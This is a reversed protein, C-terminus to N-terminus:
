EIEKEIRGVINGADMGLLEKLTEVSGHEVYVNPIGVLITKASYGCSSIYAAIQEGLGGNLVNEEMTVFLSHDKALDDVIKHDWPQAFRMNVVTASYGKEALMDKVEMATKVMTGLALLAIKEGRELVECTGLSIPQRYEKLGKYVTGRPYRIAIPHEYEAAFDLADMMEYKNKPAFVCMNPMSTLYSIDFIGQHTEGDAGVLGARDVALIVPLDQICVDHLIQDYARQLFSSYIAVIPKMGGTALGAAFTIAHEEAIGVDFFRDPDHLIQDYARQLFSSYIAVIPKMGGTALGAAFTIAHEEAIGVDFFRDPYRKAFRAMGTGEPMAASIGVIRESKEALNCIMRAFIDTYTAHKKPVKPLGTSVHFPEVGHFRSPNLEAPEYGKGKQTKVHIIVPRKMKKAASLFKMLQGMDHGDVPGLYTIGLNEFLMGPIVMQKITDKTKSIRKVLPDGIVPIKLLTDSIEQKLNNYGEDARLKGLYSSMGGVNESISMQNDNLIIIFNKKLQAANNLAEYAMGGTMAGDGIVSVVYYDQGTLERAYVMGLGASVSTSSHGTDFSDFDSEKRKPFGSLGGSQRLKDFGEKRGSLLKHTYAQHGVDWIIKDKPLDFALHLAMTLEVVGLNSALHGGTVSIKEILFERIDKALEPWDQPQLNKIDNPQNIKELM